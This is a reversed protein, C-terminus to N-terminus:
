ISSWDSANANRKPPPPMSKLINGVFCEKGEGDDGKGGVLVELGEARVHQHVELRFSYNWELARVTRSAYV